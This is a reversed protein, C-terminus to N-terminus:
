SQLEAAFDGLSKRREYDEMYGRRAFWLVLFGSSFGALLTIELAPAIGFRDSLLGSAGGAWMATLSQFLPFFSQCSGRYPLPVLDLGAAVLTGWHGAICFQGLSAAAIAGMLSLGAMPGLYMLSHFVIGVVLLVLSATIRGAPNTRTLRDSFWGCVAPGLSVFLTAVTTISAAYGVNLDFTRMFFTTSWTTCAYIYFVIPLQALFVLLLTRTSLILWLTKLPGMKVPYPGRRDAKVTPYDPAWLMLAALILGPVALVGFVSRWGYRYTIWGAVAAGLGGGLPQAMNFIGVVTGRIKRPYWASILAYGAPNYGAEGAGVVLRAAAVGAFSHALGMAWTALSWAATMIAIMYKRSFRDVLVGTPVALLGLGIFLFGSILGTKADSLGFELKMSPLIAGIMSRDAWDIAYILFIVAFWFHRNSASARVTSVGSAAPAEAVAETFDIDAALQSV